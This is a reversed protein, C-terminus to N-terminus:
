LRSTDTPAHREAVNLLRRNKAIQWELHAVPMIKEVMIMGKEMDDGRAEASRVGEEGYEAIVAQRWTMVGAVYWGTKIYFDVLSTQKNGQRTAGRFRAVPPPDSIKAKLLELLWCDRDLTMSEYLIGRNSSGRLEPIVYLMNSHFCLEEADPRCRPIGSGTPCLFRDQPVPGTNMAMSLPVAYESIWDERYENTGSPVKGAYEPSLGFGIHLLGEQQRLLTQWYSGPRAAVESYTETFSDASEQLARLRLSRFISAYKAVRPPPDRPLRIIYISHKNLRTPM